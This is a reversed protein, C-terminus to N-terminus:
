VFPHLILMYVTCLVVYKNFLDMYIILSIAVDEMFLEIFPWPLLFEINKAYFKWVFNYLISYLRGFSHLVAFHTLFPAQATRM